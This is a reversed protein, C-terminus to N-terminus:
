QSIAIFWLLSSVCSQWGLEGKFNFETCFNNISHAFCEHNVEYCELFNSLSLKAAINSYKKMLADSMKEEHSGKQKLLFFRERSTLHDNESLKNVIVTDSIYRCQRRRKGTMKNCYINMRKMLCQLKLNIISSRCSSRNEVGLQKQIKKIRDVPTEILSVLSNGIYNVKKEDSWGLTSYSIARPADSFLVIMLLFIRTKM